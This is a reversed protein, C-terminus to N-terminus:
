NVYSCFFFSFAHFACSFCNIVVVNLVKQNSLMTRKIKELLNRATRVLRLLYFEGSERGELIFMHKHSSDPHPEFVCQILVVRLLDIVAKWQHTALNWETNSTKAFLSANLKNLLIYLLLSRVSKEQAATGFKCAQYYGCITMMQFTQDFSIDM